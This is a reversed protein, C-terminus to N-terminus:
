SKLEKQRNDFRLAAGVLEEALYRAQDSSLLAPRTSSLDIAIGDSRDDITISMTQDGGASIERVWVLGKREWIDTTKM